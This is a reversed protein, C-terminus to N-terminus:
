LFTIGVHKLNKRIKGNLEPAAETKLILFIFIGGVIASRIAIDPILHGTYPILMGPALAVVSILLLKLSNLDYPQMKYTVKLFLFRLSNNAVVTVATAIASGAIGYKPIFILNAAVVLGVMLFVFFADFRYYKSNAIIVQNIGTAMEVLYGASLILIVYKGSAYAPPLLQMINDINAAIGIFLLLGITLQSNCSKAYLSAIERLDEKKFAEAVIGTMIRYLSRAPILIITGFQFAIGYIGAKDEGLMSNVMIADINLIIAGAGGALISYVGLRIMEARLEASMFGRIPRIHWEGQRVIFALLIITPLCVLSIYLLIFIRFEIIKLFYILLLAMILIRQLFDKSFSGIVSNYTARLYSDFINFFVTFFTLPMLYFLYTVFLPSKAQNRVILSPQLFVFVVYCIAFGILTILLAYFLFGHHGKDKNRFYPFFRNTVSTFGLNAFQAFLASYSVLIRLVGNESPNFLHSMWMVTLFGLGAGLYSYVANRTAQKEIIGM